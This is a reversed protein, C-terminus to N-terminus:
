AAAATDEAELFDNEFLLTAVDNERAVVAITLLSIIVLTDTDIIDEKLEDM